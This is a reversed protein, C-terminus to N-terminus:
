AAAFEFDVKELPVLFVQLAAQNKEKYQSKVVGYMMEAVTVTSVAIEGLAIRQIKDIV